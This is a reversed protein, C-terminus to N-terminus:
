KEDADLEGMLRHGEFVTLVTIGGDEVRYVIRYSRLFTERVDDRGIEARAERRPSGRRRARSSWALARALCTGSRPQRGRHVRRDRRSGRGGQGDLSGRESKRPRRGSARTSSGVSPTTTM